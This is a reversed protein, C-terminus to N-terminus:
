ARSAHHEEQRRQVGMSSTRAIVGLQEPDMQGLYSITEETLGDSFYDQAADGTLNEFPLVALLVREAPSARALRSHAPSPSPATGVVAVPAIFRYGKGVLTRIFRPHEPHDGLRRRLKRIATNIGNDIDLFVDKGWLREVIEGRSVFQGRREVLLLLLDMPIRELAVPRGRRRLESAAPDLEFDGFQFRAAEM